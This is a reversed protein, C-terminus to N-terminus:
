SRRRRTCRSNASSRSTADISRLQNAVGMRVRNDVFTPSGKAHFTILDLPTGTRGTAYNTGSSTHQLFTRLMRRRAAPSKRDASGRRRCPAACAKSRSTTSSTSSTAGRRRSRRRRASRRPRRRARGLRELLRHGARELARVVLERGGRPRVERRPAADGPLLAGGVEHLGEARVDLGTYIDNYPDGPKWFHRYPLGGAGVVVGRAHLRAARVAEDRAGQLHRRHSRPDDLRLGSPRQADETYVNTSGWKLARTGDGSTLLNHVRMFVPVPSLDQLASLLKKGNPTYTYNPEDHGFWAWFPSMPGSRSATDVHITVPETPAQARRTNSPPPSSDLAAGADDLLAPADPDHRRAEYPAEPHPSELMEIAHFAQQPSRPIRLARPRRRRLGPRAIRIGASCKRCGTSFRALRDSTLTGLRKVTTERDIARISESCSMVQGTGSFPLSNAVSLGPSPHDHHAVIVAHLHENLEDPRCWSVPAPRGIESGTTSELRVLHPGAVRSVLAMRTRRIANGAGTVLLRDDAAHAPRDRRRQGVARPKAVGTVVRAPRARGAVRGGGPWTRSSGSPTEPM